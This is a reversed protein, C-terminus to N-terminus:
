SNYFIVKKKLFSSIVLLLVFTITFIFQINFFEVLPISYLADAFVGWVIVEYANYIALLILVIGLTIWWPFFLISTLIFINLFIRLIM